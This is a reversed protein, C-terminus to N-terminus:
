KIGSLRHEIAFTIAKLLRLDIDKGLQLAWGQPQHQLWIIKSKSLKSGLVAKYIIQCDSYKVELVKTHFVQEL